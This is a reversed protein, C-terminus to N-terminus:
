NRAASTSWSPTPTPAAASLPQPQITTEYGVFRRWLVDGTSVDLAFVCGDALTYAVHGIVSAIAQGARHVVRRAPRSQATPDDTAAAVPEDVVQVREREKESIKVMAGLLQEDTDLGPYKNLLEERATYAKPTDGSDVAANIVEITADLNKVRDIERRVHAMDETISEITTAQSKRLTSPIYEPNDVLAMASETKKLLEQQVATDKALRAENVFGAAIQPLMSALEERAQAFSEEQEIPPLVEM